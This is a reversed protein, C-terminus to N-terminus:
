LNVYCMVEAGASSGLDPVKDWENYLMGASPIGRVDERFATSNERSSPNRRCSAQGRSYFAEDLVSPSPPIRLSDSPHRDTTADGAARCHERVLLEATHARARALAEPPACSCAPNKAM